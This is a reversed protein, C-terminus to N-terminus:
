SLKGNKQSPIPFEFISEGKETKKDTKEVGARRQKSRKIMTTENENKDQSPIVFSAPWNERFAPL